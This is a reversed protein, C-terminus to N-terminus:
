VFRLSMFKGSIFLWNILLKLEDSEYTLAAAPCEGSPPKPYLKLMVYVAELM